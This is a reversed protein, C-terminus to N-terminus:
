PRTEGSAPDTPGNGADVRDPDTGILPPYEAPPLILVGAIEQRFYPGFHEGDGTLLHTAEAEIAALLIPRDKDPLRVGGPLMFHQFGVVELNRLLRTLRTRQPGTKLNRRAEAIAHDSTILAVGKLKWLRLLKAKPRQAASFLVNADLFVRDM